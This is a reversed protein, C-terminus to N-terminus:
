RMKREIWELFLQYRDEFSQESTTYIGQRTLELCSCNSSSFLHTLQAKRERGDVIDHLKEFYAYIRKSCSPCARPFVVRDRSEEYVDERNGYWAVAIGGLWEEPLADLILPLMWASVPQYHGAHYAEMLLTYPKINIPFLVPRGNHAFSWHITDIASDYQAKMSMFPLGIMINTEVQFGFQQILKMTKAYELLNIDKMIVANQYQQSVSELGMELVIVKGVLLAKIRALIQQTVDKYHTEIEIVPISTHAARILVNEFLAQDIQKTDLFSGNTSLLLTGKGNGQEKLAQDMEYLYREISFTGSVTGYDCMLCAGQSDHFCRRSLFCIEIMDGQCFVDCAKKGYQRPRSKRIELNAQRLLDNDM